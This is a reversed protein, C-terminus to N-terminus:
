LSMSCNRKVNKLNKSNRKFKAHNLNEKTKENTIYIVQIIYIYIYGIYRCQLNVNVLAVFLLLMDRSSSLMTKIELKM